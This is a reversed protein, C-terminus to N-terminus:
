PINGAMISEVVTDINTFNGYNYDSFDKTKIKFRYSKYSVAIRDLIPCTGLSVFRITTEISYHNTKMVLDINAKDRISQYILDLIIGYPDLNIDMSGVIDTNLSDAKNEISFSPLSNVKISKSLLLLKYDEIRHGMSFRNSFEYTYKM